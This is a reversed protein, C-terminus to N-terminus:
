YRTDRNHPDNWDPVQEDLAGEIADTGQWHAGRDERTAFQSPQSFFLARAQSVTLTVTVTNENM